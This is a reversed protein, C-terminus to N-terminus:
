FKTTFTVGYTRPPAWQIFDGNTQAALAVAYDENLLNRGWIKASINGSEPSLTMSANLLSYSPQKLRNDAEAYWGDNYSYTINASFKTAGFVHAYDAAINATLKPARALGNGDAIGAVYTTGGGPIPVSIPADPFSDYQSHLAELGGTLRLDRSVFVEIDADLGYLSAKAGNTIVLNGDPYSTSQINKYRYYFSALNLRVRRDFLSNKLGLEFADLQEPKVVGSSNYLGSKYGRNYSAYGMVDAMFDHSLAARWSVNNFTKSGTAEIDNIGFDPLTEIFKSTRKEYTYRLGLTLKTAPDIEYVGQGFIAGSYTKRDPSQLIGSPLGFLAFSEGGITTPELFGSREHFYFAGLVWNLRGVDHSTLQVEQSFQKHPEKGTIFFTTGPEATLTSDFLSDYHTERYATISTLTTTDFDHKITSAVGWQTNRLYPQPSGYVDRKNAAVPPDFQPTTGPAPALTPVGTTRGYDAALTVTTGDRDWHLKSRFIHDSSKDVDQGNALNKGYGKGQDSYAVAIDGALNEGIGTTAYLKGEFTDYNGYGVSTSISTVSSPTLTNIQIAGGTANRGFLTGQPGKDVEVGAINSLSLMAASQAALYVGDVYTAIPNEQGPGTATTGIGRLYPNAYGVVSSYVLGPVVTGLDSANSVGSRALAVGDFASITVPVTQINENRRNATVIVEPLEDTSSPAGTAAAPTKPKEQAVVLPSHLMCGGSLAVALISRRHKAFSLDYRAARPETDSM